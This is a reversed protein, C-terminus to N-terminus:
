RVDPDVLGAFAPDTYESFGVGSAHLVSQANIVALYAAAGYGSVAQGYAEWRDRGGKLTYASMAEIMQQYRTRAQAITEGVTASDDIGRRDELGYREIADAYADFMVVPVGEREELKRLIDGLLALAKENRRPAKQRMALM